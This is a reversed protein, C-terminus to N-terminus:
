KRVLPRADGCDSALWKGSMTIKMQTAGGTDSVSGDMTGSWTEPNAAVIRLTGGSKRTGKVCELRVEQMSATAKLITRQCVGDGRGGEFDLAHSLDDKSICGKKVVPRWLNSQANKVAAEMRARQEPPLGAMHREMEAKAEAPMPPPGNNEAKSTMEWLGPKLNLNEAAAAALLLCLLITLLIPAKTTM